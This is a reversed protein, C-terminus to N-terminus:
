IGDLVRVILTKERTQPDVHLTAVPRVQSEQYQDLLIQVAKEFPAQMEFSDLVAFANQNDWILEVGADQTWEELVQRINAGELARWGRGTQAKEQTGLAPLPTNMPERKSFWTVHEPKSSVPEVVQPVPVERAKGEDYSELVMDQYMDSMRMRIPEANEEEAAPLLTNEVAAPETEVVDSSNEASPPDFYADGPQPVDFSYPQSAGESGKKEVGAASAQGAPYPNIQIPAAHLASACLSGAFVGAFLISWRTM